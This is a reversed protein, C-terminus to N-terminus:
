SHKRRASAGDLFSAPPHDGLGAFYPPTEPQTKARSAFCYSATASPGVAIPRYRFPWKQASDPLYGVNM